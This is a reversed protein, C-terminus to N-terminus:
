PRNAAADAPVLDRIKFPGMTTTKKVAVERLKRVGLLSRTYWTECDLQIDTELSYKGSELLEQAVRRMYPARQDSRADQLLVHTAWNTYRAHEPQPYPQLGPIRMGARRAPTGPNKIILSVDLRHVNPITHFMSWNQLCTTIAEYGHTFKGVGITEAWKRPLISAALFILHIAGFILVCRDQFRHPCSPM